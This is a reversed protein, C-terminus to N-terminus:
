WAEAGTNWLSVFVWLALGLGVFDTKTRGIGNRFAAFVFAVFAALLIFFQVKLNLPNM